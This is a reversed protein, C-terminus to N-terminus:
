MLRGSAFIQADFRAMFEDCAFPYNQFVLWVGASAVITVMAAAMFVARRRLLWKADLAAPLRNVALALFFAALPAAFIVAADQHVMFYGEPDGTGLFLAYI